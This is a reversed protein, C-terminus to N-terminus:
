KWEMNSWKKINSSLLWFNFKSIRSPLGHEFTISWELQANGNISSAKLAEIQKEIYITGNYKQTKNQNSIEFAIVSSFLVLLAFSILLFNKIKM